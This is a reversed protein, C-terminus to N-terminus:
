RLREFALKLWCKIHGEFFDLSKASSHLTKNDHTAFEPTLTQLQLKYVNSLAISSDIHRSLQSCEPDNLGQTQKMNALGGPLPQM